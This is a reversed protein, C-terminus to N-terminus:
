PWRLNIHLPSTEPTYGWGAGYASWGSYYIMDNVKQRPNINVVNGGAMILNTTMNHLEYFFGVNIREIISPIDKTDAYWPNLKTRMEGLYTTKAPFRCNTLKKGSLNGEAFGLHKTYIYTPQKFGASSNPITENGPCRMWAPCNENMNGMWIKGTYQNLMIFWPHNGQSWHLIYGAPIEIDAPPLFDKFDTAYMHTTQGVTHLNSICSTKVAMQKAKNLAPLLLSTLIAIIAIVVLLETLSFRKIYPTFPNKKDWKM